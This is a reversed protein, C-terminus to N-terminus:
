RRRSRRKPTAKTSETIKEMLEENAVSWQGGEVPLEAYGEDDTIDM